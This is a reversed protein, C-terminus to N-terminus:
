SLKGEYLDPFLRWLGSRLGTIKTKDGGSADRSMSIAHVYYAGLAGGAVDSEVQAVTDIAWPVRAAGPGDLHSLGDVEIQVVDKGKIRSALEREAANRAAEENRIGEAQITVPRSFGAAVADFDTAVQQVRRRSAGAVYSGGHVAVTTPVSSYDQTRTMGLVNNGSRRSLSRLARLSYIPEQQDNPFGVVVTDDPGDWHMLGFRRLHRDVAAYVSEGPQVRAEAVKLTTLRIEPDRGRNTTSRGTRLDRALSARFVFRDRGIGIAEYAAFVFDSLTGKKVNISEDASAFVADSLWSRVTFRSVAGASADLPVDNSEVRGSLQVQGNLRV